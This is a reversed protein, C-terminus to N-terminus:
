PASSSQRSVPNTADFSSTELAGAPFRDTGAPLPFGQVARAAGARTLHDRDFFLPTREQLLLCGQETCLNDFPSFYIADDAFTSRFKEDLTRREANQFREGLPM